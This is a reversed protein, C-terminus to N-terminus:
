CRTHISGMGFEEPELSSANEDNERHDNPSIGEQVFGYGMNNTTCAMTNLYRMKGLDIRILTSFDGNESLAM